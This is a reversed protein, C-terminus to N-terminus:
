NIEQYIRQIESSYVKLTAKSKQLMLDSSLDPNRKHASILNEVESAIQMVNKRSNKYENNPAFRGFYSNQIASVTPIGRSAFETLLGSDEGSSNKRLYLFLSFESIQKSFEGEDQFGYFKLRGTLKPNADWTKLLVNRISKSIDGSWDFRWNLNREALLQFVKFTYSWDRGHHWFGATGVRVEFKRAVPISSNSTLRPTGTSLVFVDVEGLIKLLQAKTATSHVLYRMRQFQKKQQVSNKFNCKAALSIVKFATLFSRTDHLLILTREVPLLTCVKRSIGFKRGEGLPVLYCHEMLLYDHNSHDNIELLSFDLNEETIRQANISIGSNIGMPLIIQIKSTPVNKTLVHTNEKLNLDIHSFLVKSERVILTYRSIELRFNQYLELVRFELAWFLRERIKKISKM